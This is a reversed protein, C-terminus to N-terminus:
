PAACLSFCRRMSHGCPLTQRGFCKVDEQMTSLFSRHVLAAYLQRADEM